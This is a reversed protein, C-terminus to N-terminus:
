QSVFTISLALAIFVLSGQPGPQDKPGPSWIQFVLVDLTTDSQAPISGSGRNQVFIPAPPM